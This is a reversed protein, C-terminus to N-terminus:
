KAPLVLLRNRLKRGNLAPRITEQAMQKLYYTAVIGTLIVEHDNEILELDHLEHIPHDLLLHKASVTERLKTMLM